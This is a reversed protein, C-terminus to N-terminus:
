DIRYRDRHTEYHDRVGAPLDDFRHVVECGLGPCKMVQEAELVNVAVVTRCNPCSITEIRM